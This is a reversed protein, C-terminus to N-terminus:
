DTWPTDDTWPYEDMWYGNYFCSLVETAEEEPIEKKEPWIMYGRTYISLVEFGRWYIKTVDYGNKKIAM